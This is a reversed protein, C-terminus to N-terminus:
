GGPFYFFGLYPMVECYEDSNGIVKIPIQFAIGVSMTKSLNFDIGPAVSIQNYKGSINEGFIEFVIELKESLYYNLGFGYNYLNNESNFQGGSNLIFNFNSTVYTDYVFKVFPENKGTGLMKDESGTKTKLGFLGSFNDRIKIKAALRIDSLGSADERGSEIDKYSWKDIPVMLRLNFSESVGYWIDTWSELWYSQVDGSYTQRKSNIIEGTYKGGYFLQDVEIEGKELISGDEQIM